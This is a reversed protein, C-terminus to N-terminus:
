QRQVRDGVVAFCGHSEKNETVHTCNHLDRSSACGAAEAFQFCQTGAMDLACGRPAKSRDCDERVPDEKEDKSSMSCVTGGNRSNTLRVGGKLWFLREGGGGDNDLRPDLM